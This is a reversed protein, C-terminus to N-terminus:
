NTNSKNVAHMCKKSVEMCANEAETFLKDADTFGPTESIIPTHGTNETLLYTLLHM